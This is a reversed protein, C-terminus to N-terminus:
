NKKKIVISDALSIKIHETTIIPTSNEFPIVVNTSDLKKEAHANKILIKIRKLRRYPNTHKSTKELASKVQNIIMQGKPDTISPNAGHTLLLKIIETKNIIVKRSSGNHKESNTILQIAELVILHLPTYGENNVQNVSGGNKLIWEIQEYNHNGQIADFLNLAPDKLQLRVTDPRKKKNNDKNDNTAIVLASRSPEIQYYNDHTWLSSLERKIEERHNLVLKKKNLKYSAFLNGNYVVSLILVIVISFFKM